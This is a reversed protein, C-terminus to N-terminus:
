KIVADVAWGSGNSVLRLRVTRLPSGPAGVSLPVVAFGEGPEPSGWTLEIGIRPAGLVALMKAQETPDTPLVATLAAQDGAVLVQLLSALAASDPQTTTAATTPPVDTGDPTPAGPIVIVKPALTVPVSSVTVDGSEVPSSDKSATPSNVFLLWALLSVGLLVLINRMRGSMLRHVRSGASGVGRLAGGGVAGLRERLSPPPTPQLAPHLYPSISDTPSGHPPVQVPVAPLQAPAFLSPDTPAPHEGPFTRLFQGTYPDISWTFGQGDVAALAALIHLAEDQTLSGQQLASALERYHHELRQLEPHM